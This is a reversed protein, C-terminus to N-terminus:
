VAGRLQKNAKTCMHDISSGSIHVIVWPKFTPDGGHFISPREFSVMVPEGSLGTNHTPM